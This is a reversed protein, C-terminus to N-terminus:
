LSNLHKRLTNYVNSIVTEVLMPKPRTDKKNLYSHHKKYWPNFVATYRQLQRIYSIAWKIQHVCFIYFCKKYKRICGLLSSSKHVNQGIKSIFMVVILLMKKPLWLVLQLANCRIIKNSVKPGNLKYSRLEKLNSLNVKLYTQIGSLKLIFM